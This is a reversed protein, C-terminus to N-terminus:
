LQHSTPQTSSVGDTAESPALGDLEDPRAAARFAIRVLAGDVTEIELAREIGDETEQVRLARARPACLSIGNALTLRLTDDALDSVLTVAHIPVSPVRTVPREHEMGHITAMWARHQRNFQELFAPWEARPVDHIVM